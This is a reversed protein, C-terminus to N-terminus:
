IKSPTPSSSFLVIRRLSFNFILVLAAAWVKSVLYYFGVRETLLYLALDNLALGMLGIIAFLAFEGLKSDLKRVDFVWVICLLYNTVLGLLFSLTAAELYHLGLYSTFVYLGAFDVIFAFGGVVVYRSFQYLIKKM